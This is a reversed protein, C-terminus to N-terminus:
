YLFSSPLPSDLRIYWHRTGYRTGTEKRTFANMERKKKGAKRCCPVLLLADELFGMYAWKMSARSSLACTVPKLSIGRPSSRALYIVITRREAFVCNRNRRRRQTEPREPLISYNRFAPSLCEASLRSYGCRLESVVGTSVAFSRSFSLFRRRM